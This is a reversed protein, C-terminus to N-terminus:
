GGEWDCFRGPARQCARELAGHRQRLGCFGSSARWVRERGNAASAGMGVRWLLERGLGGNKAGAGSSSQTRASFFTPFRDERSAASFSRAGGWVIVILKRRESCIAAAGVAVINTSSGALAAQMKGNERRREEEGM